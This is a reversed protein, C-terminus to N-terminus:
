DLGCVALNVAGVVHSDIKADIRMKRRELFADFGQTQQLQLREMPNGKLWLDDLFKCETLLASPVSVLKNDSADLRQLKALAKLLDPLQSLENRAVNLRTLRGLTALAAPLERLGNGALDLEELSTALAGGLATEPLAPGLSNGDLLLIQLNSLRPLSSGINSLQNGSLELQQLAGLQGIAVPLSTIKNQSCLLKKCTTWSGIGDPLTSLVNNSLDVTRLKDTGDGTSAAPLSRLGCDGLALVGTTKAQAVKKAIIDSAVQKARGKGGALPETAQVASSKTCSCGM